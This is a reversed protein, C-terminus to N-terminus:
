DQSNARDCLSIHTPAPPASKLVSYPTNINSDLLLLFNVPKNQPTTSHHTAFKRTVHKIIEDIFNKM